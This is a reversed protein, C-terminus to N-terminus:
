GSLRVFFSRGQYWLFVFTDYESLLKSAMWQCLKLMDRERVEKEGEGVKLPLRVNVMACQSLSSEANDLLETAYLKAVNRGADKAINECYQMIKEEGGCAEKRFKLAAEVCLYPGVDLTAVYDFLTVFHSNTNAQLPYPIPKQDQDRPAPEFGHSTPVSSRIIHQNKIPVYFVACARPVYLWRFMEILEHQSSM